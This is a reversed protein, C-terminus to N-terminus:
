EGPFDGLNKFRKIIQYETKGRVTYELLAQGSYTIVPSSETIIKGNIQEHYKRMAESGWICADYSNDKQYIKIIDGSKFEGTNQPEILDGRIKVSLKGLWLNCFVIDQSTLYTKLKLQFYMFSEGGDIGQSGSWCTASIIKFDRNKNTSTLNITDGLVVNQAHFIRLNITLIFIILLLQKM